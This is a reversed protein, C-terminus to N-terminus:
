KKSEERPASESPGAGAPARTSPAPSQDVPEPPTPPACPSEFAETRGWCMWSDVYTLSEGASLPYYDPYQIHDLTSIVERVPNGEKSVQLKYVRYEARGAPM